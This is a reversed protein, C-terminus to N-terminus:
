LELSCLSHYAVTEFLKETPRELVLIVVDGAESSLSRHCGTKLCCKQSFSDTKVSSVACMEARIICGLVSLSWIDEKLFLLVIGRGVVMCIEVPQGPKVSVIEVPQGSKVSVIKWFLSTILLASTIHLVNM